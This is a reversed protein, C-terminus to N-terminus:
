GGDVDMILQRPEGSRAPGVWGQECALGCFVFEYGERTRARWGRWWQPLETGAAFVERGCGDCRWRM